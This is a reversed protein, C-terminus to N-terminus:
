TYGLVRMAEGAEAEFFALDQASFEQRWAGSVGARPRIATSRCAAALGLRRRVARILRDPLVRDTARLRRGTKGRRDLTVQAIDPRLRLELREAISRLEGEFNAQMAAFGALARPETHLWSLVHHQWYGPRSVSPVDPASLRARIFEAFSQSAVNPHYSAMYHYFSVLVDRGDRHAYVVPAEALLRAAYEGTETSPWARADPLAHVKVLVIRRHSRLQRDFDAVSLHERHTPDIRELTMFEPEVDRANRRLSDLLQHTGARRHSAVIVVGKV